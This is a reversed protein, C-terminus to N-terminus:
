RVRYRFSFRYGEYIAIGYFLLDLPQFLIGFLRVWLSLDFAMLVQFFPLHQADAYFALGSLLNGLTCGFLACAAGLYGFVPDIGRGVERIARGVVYGVAVAVIGLEMKTVFTIVAWVIAAAIATGVGAAIALSPNQQKRIEAIARERSLADAAAAQPAAQDVM